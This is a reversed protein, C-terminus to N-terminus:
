QGVLTAYRSQAGERAELLNMGGQLTLKKLRTPARGTRRVNAMMFAYDPGSFERYLNVHKEVLRRSCGLVNRIEPLPLGRELLYTVRAFDLLYNEVSGYSHGSRRVIETHPYGDLYLRIIKDTHEANDRNAMEWDERTLYDLVVAQLECDSLKKGAPERDSM